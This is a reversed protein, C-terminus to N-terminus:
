FSRFFSIKGTEVPLLNRTTGPLYSRDYNVQITGIKNILMNMGVTGGWQTERNNVRNYKLGGSISLWQKLDYTAAQELTFVELLKQSSVTIGTQLQLKNLFFLQNVSVSTANYYIFGTDSSNNYFRLYLLNTNMNITGTRYAYGVAANLTNYQNEVVLNGPLVTLQSAPFFGVTAYPYKPVRISLQASKFVTSSSFGPNVFPNTFENKRVGAELQIRKKWFHQQWKVHFSEQNTNIPMLNFSQFHEGTKRYYGTLKANLGPWTSNIKISFAENSRDKFNAIKQLNNQATTGAIVGSFSSKAFELVIFNNENIRYRTEASIGTINEPLSATSSYGFSNLVIKKGTYYTLIFNNADKKGIGARIVYLPQKIRDENKIVFDRFRYNVRGAAFAFYFNSPNIEANIGTLSINKVTLESYDVWTRGVGVSKFMTLTQWNRPLQSNKIDYKGTFAKIENVNKLQTIEKKVQNVTDQLSRKIKKIKEEYVTLETKAKQFDAQKKKYEDLKGKSKVSDVVTKQKQRYYVELKSLISDALIEGKHMVKNILMKKYAEENMLEAPVGSMDTFVTNNINTHDALLNKKNLAEREKEEVLEQVRAPSTLWNQLFHVEEQKYSYQQGVTLLQDNFKRTLNQQLQSQLQQKIQSLYSSQNLQVNVDAINTFYPSNTRRALLTVRVPYTNKFLFDFNAQATHQQYNKQYFPTDILSRYLFDYQVSGRLKLFPTNSKNLVPKPQTNVMETAKLIKCVGSTRIWISDSAQYLRPNIEM